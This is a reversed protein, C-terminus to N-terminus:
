QPTKIKVRMGPMDQGLDMTVESDTSNINGSVNADFSGRDGRSELGFIDLVAEFISEGDLTMRGRITQNELSESSGLGKLSFSFTEALTSQAGATAFLLGAALCFGHCCRQITM